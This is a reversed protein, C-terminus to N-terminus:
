DSFIRLEMILDLWLSIYGFIVYMGIALVRTTIGMSTVIADGYPRTAVNILAMSVYSAAGIASTGLKGAFITDVINYIATIMMGIIAPIALKILVSEVVEQGMMKARKDITNM